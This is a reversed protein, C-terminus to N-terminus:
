PWREVDDAHHKMRPPERRPEDIERCPSCMQERLEAPLNRERRIRPQLWEQAFDRRQRDLWENGGCVGQRLARDNRKLDLCADPVQRKDAGRSDEACWGSRRDLFNRELHEIGAIRKRFF